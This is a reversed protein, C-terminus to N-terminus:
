LEIRAALANLRHIDNELNRRLTRITEAVPCLMAEPTCGGGEAGDCTPIPRLVPSLREIMDSVTSSLAHSASRLTDIEAAVEPLRPEVATNLCGSGVNM